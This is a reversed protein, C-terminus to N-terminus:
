QELIRQKQLETEAKIFAALDFDEVSAEFRTAPASNKIVVIADFSAFQAKEADSAKALVQSNSVRLALTDILINGDVGASLESIVPFFEEFEEASCDLERGDFERRKSGPGCFVSIALADEGRATALASAFGGLGEVGTPTIGRYVHNTGFKLMPRQLGVAKRSASFYTFLLKKMYNERERNGLLISGEGRTFPAYIRNSIKIAEAIDQAEVDKEKLLEDYLAELESFDAYGVLAPRVALKNEFADLAAITAKRRVRPRLRDVLTKGSLVFAQDLGWLSPKIGAAKRVVHTALEAEERWAYFPIRYQNSRRDYHSEFAGIGEAALAEIQIATWPDTEIALATRETLDYLAQSFKAVDAVGHVEGIMVFRADLGRNLLWDKGAGEISGETLTFPYVFENGSEQSVAATGSILLILISLIRM